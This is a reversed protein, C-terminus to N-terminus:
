STNSWLMAMERDQIVSPQRYKHRALQTHPSLVRQKNRSTRSQTEEIALPELPQDPHIEDVYESRSGALSYERRKMM